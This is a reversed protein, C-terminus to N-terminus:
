YLLKMAENVTVNFTEEDLSDNVHKLAKHPAVNSHRTIQSIALM